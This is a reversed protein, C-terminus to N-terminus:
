EPKFKPRTLSRLDCEIEEISKGLFQSNYILHNLQKKYEDELHVGYLSYYACEVIM